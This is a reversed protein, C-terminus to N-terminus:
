AVRVVSHVDGGSFERVRLHALSVGTWWNALPWSFVPAKIGERAALKRMAAEIQARTFLENLCDRMIGGEQDLNLTAM